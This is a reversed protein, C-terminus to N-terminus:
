KTDQSGSTTPIISNKITAYNENFYHMSICVCVQTSSMICMRTHMCIYTELDFLQKTHSVMFYLVTLDSEYISFLIKSIIQLSVLLPSACLFPPSTQSPWCM